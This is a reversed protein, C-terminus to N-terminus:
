TFYFPPLGILGKKRSLINSSQKKADTWSMGLYPQSDPKPVGETERVPKIIALILTEQTDSFAAGLDESLFAKPM